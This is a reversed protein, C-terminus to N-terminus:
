ISYEVKDLIACLDLLESPKFKNSEHLDTMLRDYWYGDFLGFLMNTIEPYEVKSISQIMDLVFSTDDMSFVEHRNFRRHTYEKTPNM